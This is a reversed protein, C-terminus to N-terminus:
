ILSLSRNRKEVDQREAAICHERWSYCQSIMWDHKVYPVAYETPPKSKVSIVRLPECENPEAPSSEDQRLSTNAPEGKPQETKLSKGEPLESKARLIGPLKPPLPKTKACSSNLLSVILLVALINHRCNM